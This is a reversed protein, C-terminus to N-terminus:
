TTALLEITAQEDIIPEGTLLNRPVIILFDKYTWGLDNSLRITDNELWVYDNAYQLLLGNLFVDPNADYARAREIEKSAITVDDHVTGKLGVMVKPRHGDACLPGEDELDKPDM